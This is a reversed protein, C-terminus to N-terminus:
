KSEVEHDEVLTRFTKGNSNKLSVNKVKYTQKSDTKNTVNFGFVVTYDDEGEYCMPEVVEFKINDDEFPNSNLYFVIANSDDNNSSGGGCSTFLVLVLLSFILLGLKKM